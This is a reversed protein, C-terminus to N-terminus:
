VHRAGKAQADSLDNLHDIDIPNFTKIPLTAKSLTKLFVSKAGKDGELALLKNFLNERFGAPPLVTDGDISMVADFNSLLTEVSDLHNGPVFPMDSLCVVIKESHSDIAAQVGIRLSGSQGLQPAPNTLVTWESKEYLIRLEEEHNPIVVIRECNPKHKWLDATHSAVPQGNLSAMLKNAAGFRRSLGSALMLITIRESM